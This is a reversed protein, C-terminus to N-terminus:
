TLNAHSYPKMINELLPFADDGILVYPVPDTTGPLPSPAPIHLKDETLDQSFRTNGYVGGDSVRGNTGIHVMLFQCKANVIAMLVVSFTGKYNYYYSGSNYPKTIKVHKGDIAGLCHPFDWKRDFEESVSMWEEESEPILTLKYAGQFPRPHPDILVSTEIVINGLSQPSICCAFKLDEFSDGTALFRLTCLLRQSAPIADRLQTTKKEIIPSVMTLLNMFTDHDMRLYNRYDEPSSVLLENLCANILCNCRKKYWEKMWLRRKKNKDDVEESALALLIAICAKRKSM